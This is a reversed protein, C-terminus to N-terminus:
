SKKLLGNLPKYKKDKALQETVTKGKHNFVKYAKANRSSVLVRYNDGAIEIAASNDCALALGGYQAIMKSLSLERKEVHYHPCYLANIIGLGKVRIYSWKQKGSFSRSDSHGFKFWCMAGSSLGSLVIGHSAAEKLLNNMGLRRWIKMMRLTNGGGVYILDSDLVLASIEDYSPPNEILKLTSTKCGLKKGYIKDFVEIYGCADGSATPIFLAKPKNKGTM